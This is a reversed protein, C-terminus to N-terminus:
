IRKVATKLNMSLLGMQVWIEPGEQTDYKIKDLGFHSKAHGFMGEIRHRERQKQKRWRDSSDQNHNRRGLPQFADRIKHEKIFKRNDRNGYLKDGVAYDPKKGFLNEYQGILNELRNAESFNESSLHELFFMLMIFYLKRVLRKSIKSLSSSDLLHTTVFNDM